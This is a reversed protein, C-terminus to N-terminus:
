RDRRPRQKIESMFQEITQVAIRDAREGDEEVVRMWARENLRDYFSHDAVDAPPWRDSAYTGTAEDLNVEPPDAERMRKLITHISAMPNTYGSFDFGRQEASEKIQVPTLREKRASALFLAIKVAEAITTPVRLMELSLMEAAREDDSLFNANARILDRLDGIKDDLVRRLGYLKQIAAQADAIQKRFATLNSLDM